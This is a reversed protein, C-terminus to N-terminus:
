PSTTVRAPAGSCCRRSRPRTSAAQARGHQDQGQARGRRGGRDWGAGPRPRRSPHHLPLPRAPPQRPQCQRAERGGRAPRARVPCPPHRQDDAHARRPRPRDARRATRGAHEIDRRVLPEGGTLRIRKVGRAIFLDALTVIEEFSLIERRPLFQMTEAMCYRCRLDCRDTVSLRVYSIRRGFSDVLEKEKTIPTMDTM